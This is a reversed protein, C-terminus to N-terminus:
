IRIGEKNIVESVTHMTPFVEGNKRKMFFNDDQFIGESNLKILSKKGFDEYHKKDVHLFETNKGILEEVSYGFIKEVSKNASLIIRTKPDIIFVAENLSNFTAELLNKTNLLKEEAEKHTTIDKVCGLIRFYHERHNIKISKYYDRVWKINGTKHILRHESSFPKNDILKPIINSHFNGLEEKIIISGFGGELKQIEKFSYGTITEFAGVVWETEIKGNFYVKASYIYDSVLDCLIQHQQESKRRYIETKKQKTIDLSVTTLGSIEGKENFIPQGFIEFYVMDSIVKFGIQEQNEKGTKIINSKFRILHKFGSIIGLEDDRKGIISNLTLQHLPNNIWVYRLDLDILAIILHPNRIVSQVLEKSQSLNLKLSNSDTDKKFKAKTGNKSDNNVEDKQMRPITNELKLGYAM